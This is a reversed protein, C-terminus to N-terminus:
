LNKFVASPKMYGQELNPFIDEESFDFNHTANTMVSEVDPGCQGQVQVTAPIYDIGHKMFVQIRHNGSELRFKKNETGVRIIVPDHLGEACMNKWLTEMDVISGDKLDTEPTVDAGRYTFLWDTPVLEVLGKQSLPHNKWKELIEM